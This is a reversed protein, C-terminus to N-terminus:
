TQSNPPEDESRIEQTIAWRVTDIENEIKHLIELKVGELELQLAKLLSDRLM